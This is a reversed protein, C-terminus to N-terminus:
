IKLTVDILTIEIDEKNGLVRATNLGAFGGGIIVVRKKM